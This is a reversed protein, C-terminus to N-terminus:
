KSYKVTSVRKFNFTVFQVIMMNIHFDDYSM